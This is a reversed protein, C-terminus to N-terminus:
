TYVSFGKVKIPSEHLNMIELAQVLTKEDTEMEELKYVAKPKGKKGTNELITGLRINSLKDLLTDMSGNFGRGKVTKYILSIM